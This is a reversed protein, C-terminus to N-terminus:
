PPEVTNQLNFSASYLCKGFEIFDHSEQDNIMIINHVAEIETPM